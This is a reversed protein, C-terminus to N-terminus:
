KRNLLKRIAGKARYKLITMRANKKAAGMYGLTAVDEMFSDRAELKATRDKTERTIYDIASEPLEELYEYGVLSDLYEKAKDTHAIILSIGENDTNEPRYKGIGWFDGITFDPLNDLVRKCTYCSRRLINSTQFYYYYYYYYYPGEDIKGNEFTMRWDSNRWGRIKPRFDFAVIKSNHKQEEYRLYESFFENAPVGHCVFRVLLLNERAIRKTNLYDVLGEVQCPTGVYLVKKSNKLHQGIERFTTGLYSEIYKSKRLDSLSCNETCDQILKEKEFDYRAGYVIGGESIIKDALLTFAGGSSSEKVIERDRSKTMYPMRFNSSSSETDFVQCTKECLHCDICKSEDLKPMYFGEKDPVLTLADKPCISVCAGCGTCDDPINLIRLAM